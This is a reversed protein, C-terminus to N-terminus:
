FRGTLGIQQPGVVLATDHVFFSGGLAGAGGVLLGVTAWRSTNFRALLADAEAATVSAPDGQAESIAAFAPNVVLFNVAAGGVLLTAGGIQLGRRVPDGGQRPAPEAKAVAPEPRAPEAKPPDAKPPEPAPAEGFAPGLDGWEDENAAVAPAANVDIGGPCLKLWRPDKAFTTWTGAVTGDDCTIQALHKGELAQAGAEVAVGDVFLRAKGVKEPISLGVKGRGRVETRLAEFLSWPDGDDGVIGQEWQLTNDLVLAQRWHEMVVSPRAKQLHAVAGRYYWIRALTGPTLVAGAEPAKSEAADLAKTAAALDRASLAKAAAAVQDEVPGAWAMGPLLLGFLALALAGRLRHADM